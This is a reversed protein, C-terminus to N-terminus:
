GCEVQKGAQNRVIARAQLVGAPVIHGQAVVGTTIWPVIPPILRKAVAHM